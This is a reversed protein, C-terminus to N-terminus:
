INYIVYVRVCVCLCVCVYVIRERRRRSWSIPVDFSALPRTGADMEIPHRRSHLGVEYTQVIIYYFYDRERDRRRQTEADRRRQTETDRYENIVYKM